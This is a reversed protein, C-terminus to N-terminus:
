TTPPCCGPARRPWGSSYVHSRRWSRSASGRYRFRSCASTGCSISRRSSRLIAITRCNTNFKYILRMSCIERRRGSTPNLCGNKSQNPLSSSIRGIGVKNYSVFVVTQCFLCFPLDGHNGFKAAIALMLIVQPMFTLLSIGIDEEDVTLYLMYFYPSFNHRIDKRTIHYFYTEHLFERGFRSYFFVTLAGLSVATGIAFRVRAWNIQFLSRWGSLDSLALYFSFSYIVPYIKFHIALGFFLGALVFVRARFLHLTVLVLACVVAEASGRTSVGIVLPNYLWAMAAVRASVEGGGGLAFRLSDKVFAYILQGTVVDFAAFLFKGFLPTLTVNPILLFALIPTYRYTSRAYPSGGENLHRAADTVVRYDIDTYKVLHNRDHHEGYLIFMFRLLFSVILHTRFPVLTALSESSPSPSPM